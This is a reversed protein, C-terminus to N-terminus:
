HGLRYIDATANALDRRSMWRDLYQNCKGCQCRELPVSGSIYHISAGYKVALRVMADSASEADAGDDAMVELRDVVQDTQLNTITATVRVTNREPDKPDYYEAICCIFDTKQIISPKKRKIKRM